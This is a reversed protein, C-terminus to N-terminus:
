KVGDGTSETASGSSANGSQQSQSTFLAEIEPKSFLALVKLFFTGPAPVRYEKPDTEELAALISIFAAKHNKIAPKVAKLPAGGGNLIAKLEPDTFIEAAPEMMDALFDLREENTREKAM